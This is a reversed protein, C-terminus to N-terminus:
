RAAADLFLPVGAQVAARRLARDLTALPLGLRLALDLYGADYASLRSHRSLSVLAAISHPFTLDNDFRITVSAILNIIRAIEASPIRGRREAVAIGNAVESTWVSPVVAVHRRNRLEVMVSEAYGEAEDYFCWALAVSADLVLESM